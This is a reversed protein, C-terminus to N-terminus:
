FVRYIEHLCFNHFLVFHFKLLKGLKITHLPDIAMYHIYELDPDTHLQVPDRVVSFCDIGHKRASEWAMGDTRDRFRNYYAENTRHSRLLGPTWRGAPSGPCEGRM